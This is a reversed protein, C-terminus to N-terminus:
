RRTFVGFSIGVSVTSLALSSWLFIRWQLWWSGFDVLFSVGLLATEMRAYCFNVIGLATLPFVCAFVIWYLSPRSEKPLDLLRKTALYGVAGLILTSMATAFELQKLCVDLFKDYNTSLQEFVVSALSTAQM